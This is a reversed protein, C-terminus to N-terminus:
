SVGGHAPPQVLDSPNLVVQRNQPAAFPSLGDSSHIASFPTDVSFASRGLFPVEEPKFVKNREGSHGCGKSWPSGASTWM